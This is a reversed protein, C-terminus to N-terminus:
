VLYRVRTSLSTDHVPIGTSTAASITLVRAGQKTNGSDVTYLEALSAHKIIVRVIPIKFRGQPFDVVLERSLKITFRSRNYRSVLVATISFKITGLVLHRVRTSTSSNYHIDNDKPYVRSSYYTYIRLDVATSSYLQIV